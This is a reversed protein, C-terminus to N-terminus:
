WDAPNTAFYEIMGTVRRAYETFMRLNMFITDADVREPVEPHGGANRCRRLLEYGSPFEGRITESHERPLMKADAMLVLHEHLTAYRHLITNRSAVKKAFRSKKTADSIAAEFSDCLLLVLKESACGLMVAASRMCGANFAVVAEAVYGGVAPDVTPCRSKFYALFGDPDYPQPCEEKLAAQGHDTLRYWPWAANAADIGFVLM